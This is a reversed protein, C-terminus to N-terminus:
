NEIYFYGFVNFALDYNLFFPWKCNVSLDCFHGVLNSISQKMMYFAFVCTMQKTLITQM